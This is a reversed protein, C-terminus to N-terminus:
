IHLLIGRQQYPKLKTIAQAIELTPIELTMAVSAAAAINYLNGFGSLSTELLIQHGHSVLVASSGKVGRMRVDTIKLDTKPSFGYTFTKPRDKLRKAILPDDANYVVTSKATMGAVLSCKEDAIAEITSFNMAHVPNVNM